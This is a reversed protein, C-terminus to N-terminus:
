AAFLDNDDSFLDQHRHHVRIVKVLHEALMPCVAALMEIAEEEFPEARDRYFMIAGLNEGTEDICPGALMNCNDMWGPIEGIHQEFQGDRTFHIIEGADAVAPAIEDAAQDLIFSLAAKDHSYNVYGGVSYSGEHAPLFVIANTPGVRKIFFELTRRLVQELDLEEDLATKLEGTLEIDQVRNALDQYANVLDNCLIDVQQTIEHRAANLQKCLTRLRTLRRERKTEARQQRLANEIRRNLDSLDFPKTVFDVCGARLAAIARDASAEGTVIMTRTLPHTEGLEEAFGLGDGDPLKLDILVLDIADDAIIRRATQISDAHHIRRGAAVIADHIAERVAADDEVILVDFPAAKGKALIKSANVTPTTTPTPV